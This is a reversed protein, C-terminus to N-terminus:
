LLRYSEDKLSSLDAKAATLEALMPGIDKNLSGSLSFYNSAHNCRFITGESDINELFVFMEDIIESPELPVFDGKKYQDFLLTDPELMLALFGIYDPKILSFARATNLAHSDKYKKGGLGSIATMSLLIGADMLKKASEIITHSSEGKNISKLVNDDGSELGMYVMKLGKDRLHRLDSQSKDLINRGRAYASVREIEPFIEKILDLIKALSEFSLALADGDALFIRKVTSYARRASLLDSRIDEISRQVFDKSKYMSCFTCKNYSCGLTVQIILSRAESPPRYLPMHYNIM